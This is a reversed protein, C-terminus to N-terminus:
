RVGAWARLCSRASPAAAHICEIRRGFFGPSFLSSLVGVRVRAGYKGPKDQFEYIEDIKAELIRGTALDGVMQGEDAPWYGLQDGNKRSIRVASKDVPNDPEIVFDIDEGGFCSQIIEQRSTGDETRTSYGM